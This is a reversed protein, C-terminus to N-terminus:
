DPPQDRNPVSNFSVTLPSGDQGTFEQREVYGRSKGQTKALFILAAINRKHVAEDYLALEVADLMQERSEEKADAVTKYEAIYRRITNPSCQLKKAALTIMGKTDTLAQAVQAATYKENAM